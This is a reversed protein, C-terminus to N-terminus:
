GNGNRRNEEIQKVHWEAWDILAKKRENNTTRTAKGIAYPSLGKKMGEVIATAYENQWQLEANRKATEYGARLKDLQVNKSEFVNVLKQFEPNEEVTPRGGKYSDFPPQM